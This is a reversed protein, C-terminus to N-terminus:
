FRLSAFWTRKPLTGAVDSLMTEAVVILAVTVVPALPKTVTNVGFPFSERGPKVKIGGGVRVENAGAEAVAPVVTIKVPVFRVPAVETM